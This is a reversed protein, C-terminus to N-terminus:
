LKGEDQDPSLNEDQHSFDEVLEEYEPEHSKYCRETFGDRASFNAVGGFAMGPEFYKLNITLAPFKEVLNKLAEIPPGWATDFNLTASDDTDSFKWADQNGALFEEKDLDWKTGWHELRWTYWNEIVNGDATLPTPVIREFSFYDGMYEHFKKFEQPSTATIEIQNNCWNPM